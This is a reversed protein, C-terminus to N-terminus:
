TVREHDDPNAARNAVTNEEGDRRRPDAAAALEKTPMSEDGEEEEEAEAEAEAEAEEVEHDAPNAARNAVTNEEGDRRRPDAAAALDKTPMAEDGEEAEEEAEEEEVEPEPEPEPTTSASESKGLGFLSLVSDLLSM